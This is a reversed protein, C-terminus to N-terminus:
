RGTSAVSAEGNPVVMGNLTADTSTMLTAPQTAALPAAAMAPSSVGILWGMLGIGLAVRSIAPRLKIVTSLAFHGSRNSVPARHFLVMAPLGLTM